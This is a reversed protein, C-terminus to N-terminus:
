WIKFSSFEWFLPYRSSFNKPSKNAKKSKDSTSGYVSRTGKLLRLGIGSTTTVTTADVKLGELMYSKRITDENFIEVFDAGTSSALNIVERALSKNLM